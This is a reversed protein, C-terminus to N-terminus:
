PVEGPALISTVAPCVARVMDFDAEVRVLSDGDWEAPKAYDVSVFPFAFAAFKLGDSPETALVQVVGSGLTGYAWVGTLALTNLDVKLRFTAYAASDSKVVLCLPATLRRVDNVEVQHTLHGISNNLLNIARENLGETDLKKVIM